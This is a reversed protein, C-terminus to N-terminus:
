QTNRLSRAQRRTGPHDSRPTRASTPSNITEQTASDIGSTDISAQGAPDGQLLTEKIKAGIVRQAIAVARQGLVSYDEARVAVSHQRHYTVDLPIIAALLRERDEEDVRLLFDEVRPAQGAQWASEFEDCLHDIELSTLM